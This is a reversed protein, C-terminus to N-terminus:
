VLMGKRVAENIIVVREETFILEENADVGSRASSSFVWIGMVGRKRM